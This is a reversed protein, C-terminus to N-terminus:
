GKNSGIAGNFWSWSAGSDGADIWAAEFADAQATRAVYRSAKDMGMCLLATSLCEAEMADGALVVCAANGTLPASGVPDFLDSRQQGPSLTASCSFGRGSVRVRLLEAAEVPSALPVRVAITWPEDTEDRGLALISSTGGHLLASGIGQATLIEAARHLAYGNGIGGLDVAVGPEEFRVTRNGPDIAVAALACRPATVDFYGETREWAHRCTRLLGLVEFDIRVPRRAAELNIRAVESRPDFRSLLRDIRQIEDLVAEATAALHEPDDGVLRAEFWTGMAPRLHHIVHLM